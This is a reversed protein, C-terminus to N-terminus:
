AALARAVGFLHHPLGQGPQQPAFLKVVILHLLPQCAVRRAWGRRGFALVPPIAVPPMDVVFVDDGHRIFPFIGPIRGPVQCEVTNTQGENVRVKRFMLEGEEQALPIHVGIALDRGVFPREPVDVRRHVGPGRPAHIFNLLANPPLGVAGKEFPDEVLQQQIKVPPHIALIRLAVVDELPAEQPQIVDADEVARGRERGPAVNLM